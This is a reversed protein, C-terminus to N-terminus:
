RFAWIAPSGGAVWVTSGATVVVVPTSLADVVVAGTLGDGGAVTLGDGVVVFLGDTLVVFWTVVVSAGTGEVADVVVVVSGTTSGGATLEAAGHRCVGASGPGHPSLRVAAVGASCSGAM